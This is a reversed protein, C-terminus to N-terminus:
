DRQNVSYRTVQFGLPNVFRESYAVTRPLYDVTIFARWKRSAIEDQDTNFDHTVYDVTYYGKPTLDVNEIDVKRTIEGEVFAKYAGSKQQIFRRYEDATTRNLIYNSYREKMEAENLVVEERMKVYEGVLKETMLQVGPMDKQIPLIRVFTDKKEDFQVLMPVVEKLNWAISLATAMIINLLLSLYMGIAFARSTWLYRRGELPPVHVDAPYQGIVDASKPINDM